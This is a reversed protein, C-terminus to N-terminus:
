GACAGCNNLNNLKANGKYGAEEAAKQKAEEAAQEEAEATEAAAPLLIGYKIGAKRKKTAQAGKDAAPEEAIEETPLEKADPYLMLRALLMSATGATTMSHTIQPNAVFPNPQYCFGGDRLQTKMHWAAANDWVRKPVNVGHRSAEWLGLMAYQTISTDGANGGGPLTGAGTGAPYHWGGHAEQAEILYRAIAEIQPKYGVPDATGFAMLAVGAEYRHHDVPTYVGNAVQAAMATLGAKVEPSDAPVGAKLLALVMLSLHGGRQSTVAGKLYGVARTISAQIQEDTAGRVPASGLGLWVSAL